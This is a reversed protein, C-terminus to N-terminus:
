FCLEAVSRRTKHPFRRRPRRPSEVSAAMFNHDENTEVRIQYPVHKTALDMWGVCRLLVDQRYRCMLKSRLCFLGRVLSTEMCEQVVLCGLVVSM